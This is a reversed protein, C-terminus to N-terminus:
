SLHKKKIKQNGVSTQFQQGLKLCCAFTKNITIISVFKEGKSTSPLFSGSVLEEENDM